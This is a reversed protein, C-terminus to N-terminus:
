CHAWGFWSGRGGPDTNCWPGSGRVSVKVTRSPYSTTAGITDDARGHGPMEKWGGGGPWAHWITGNPAIGFSEVRGFNFQYDKDHWDVDLIKTGSRFTGTYNYRTARFSPVDAQRAAARTGQGTQAAQAALALPSATVILAGALLAGSALRATRFRLPTM